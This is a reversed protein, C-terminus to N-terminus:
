VRDDEYGVEDQGPNYHNVRVLSNVVPNSGTVFFNLAVWEVM